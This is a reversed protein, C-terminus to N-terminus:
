PEATMLLGLSRLVQNRALRAGRNGPDIKLARAFEALAEGYRRQSALVSGLAIRAEASEPSLKLAARTAGEAELHRGMREYALARGLHVAPHEPAKALFRLAEEARDLHVLALGLLGRAETLGPDREFLVRCLREVEEYSGQYLRAEALHLTVQADGASAGALANEFCAVAEDYLGARLAEFGRDVEDPGDGVPGRDVAGPTGAKSFGSLDMM